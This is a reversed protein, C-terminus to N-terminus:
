LVREAARKIIKIQPDRCVRTWNFWPGAELSVRRILQNRFLPEHEERKIVNNIAAGYKGV